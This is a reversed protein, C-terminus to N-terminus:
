EPGTVKPQLVRLGESTGEITKTIPDKDEGFLNIISPLAFAGGGMLVGATVLVAKKLTGFTKKIEPSVPSSIPAAYHNTTTNNGLQIGGMKEEESQLDLLAGKSDSGYLRAHNDQMWARSQVDELKTGNRLIELATLEQAIQVKELDNFQKEQSSDKWNEEEKPSSDTSNPITEASPQSELMTTGKSILDFKTM